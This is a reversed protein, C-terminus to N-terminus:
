EVVVEEVWVQAPYAFQPRINSKTTVLQNEVYVEVVYYEDLTGVPWVWLTEDNFSGNIGTVSDPAYVLMGDQTFLKLKANSIADGNGDEIMLKMIGQNGTAELEIYSGKEAGVYVSDAVDYVIGFFKAIVKYYGDDLNEVLTYGDESFRRNVWVDEVRGEDGYKLVDFYDSWNYQLKNQYLDRRWLSVIITNPKVQSEIGVRNLVMNTSVSQNQFSVSVGVLQEALHTINVKESFEGKTLLNPDTRLVIEGASNKLMGVFSVKAGEGMLNGDVTLVVDRGFFKPFKIGTQGLSISEDKDLGFAIGNESTKVLVESDEVDTSVNWYEKGLQFDDNRVFDSWDEFELVNEIPAYRIIKEILKDNYLLYVTTISLLILVISFYFTLNKYFWTKKAKMVSTTKTFELVKQIEEESFVKPEFPVGVVDMRKKISKLIEEWGGDEYFNVWHLERLSFPPESNDLRVPILFTTEELKEKAKDLARRVEAQIVGEKNSFNESLCLIVVHAEDIAQDIKMRYHDGAFLREKDRWVDFGVRVLSDYLVDVIPSDTRAYSIFIKPVIKTDNDSM